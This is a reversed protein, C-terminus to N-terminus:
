DTAPLTGRVMTRHVAHTPHTLIAPHPVLVFLAHSAGDPSSRLGTGTVPLSGTRHRARRPRVTQSRPGAPAISM